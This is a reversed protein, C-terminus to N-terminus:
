RNRRNITLVGLNGQIGAVQHIDYESHEKRIVKLFVLILEGQLVSLREVIKSRGMDFSLLVSLHNGCYSHYAAQCIM